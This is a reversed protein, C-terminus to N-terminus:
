VPIAAPRGAASDKAGAKKLIWVGQPVVLWFGSAPMGLGGVIGFLILSWGLWRPLVVGAREVSHALGGLMMILFGFGISWFAAMEIPVADAQGIYGRAMLSGLHEHAFGLVAFQHLLGTAFLLSGSSTKM